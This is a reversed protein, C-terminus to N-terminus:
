GAAINSEVCTSKHVSKPEARASGPCGFCCVVLLLHVEVTLAVDVSLDLLLHVEVILADDVSFDLVLHVDESLAVDVSLDLVVHVEDSLDLLLDEVLDEETLVVGM